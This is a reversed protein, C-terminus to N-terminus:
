PSATIRAGITARHANSRWKAIAARHTSFALQEEPIEDPAFFRVDASDSGPRLEGGVIHATYVVLVGSTGKERHFYSWVGLLDDTVVQLGTEEWCERQAAQEVTEDIEMFGAPLCWLGKGPNEGRLVLVIKGDERQAIVGAAIPPNLYIIHGCAPCVPRTHGDEVLRTTLAHGCHHCFRPQM